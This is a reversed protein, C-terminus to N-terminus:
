NAFEVIVCKNNLISYQYTHNPQYETIATTPLKVYSPFTVNYVTDGFEFEGAYEVFPASNDYPIEFDSDILGHDTYEYGTEKLKTFSGDTGITYFIKHGYANEIVAEGGAGNNFTAVGVGFDTRISFTSGTMVSVQQLQELNIAAEQSDSSAGTILYAQQPIYKSFKAMDQRPAVDGTNYDVEFCIIGKDAYTFIGQGLSGVFIIDGKKLICPYFSNLELKSLVNLNEKPSYFDLEIYEFPLGSEGEGETGNGGKAGLIEWAGDNFIRLARGDFWLVGKDTPAYPQIVTKTINKSM